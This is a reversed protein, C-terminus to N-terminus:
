NITLPHMMSKAINISWHPLFYDEKVNQGHGTCFNYDFLVLIIQYYRNGRVSCSCNQSWSQPSLLREQPSSLENCPPIGDIKEEIEKIKNELSQIQDILIRLAMGRVEFAKGSYM